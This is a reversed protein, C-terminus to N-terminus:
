SASGRAAIGLRHAAALARPVDDVLVFDVGAAFLSELETAEPSAMFNVKIGAEKCRRTLEPEAPGRLHHLQIFSSHTAIAHAVYESRTPQRVLNCSLISPQRERASAIAANGGAVFAQHLREQQAIQDAVQAGIPEGYKIQVNVWVDPPVIELAERLTPITEGAFAEGKHRGFDFRRLQALSLECVRGTGESCREVTADHIVVLEGDCTRRVDLEIQHAGLAIAEAFAALTNEPRHAAGGRHAAVGREPLESLPSAADM